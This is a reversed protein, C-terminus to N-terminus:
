KVGWAIGCSVVVAGSGWVPVAIELHVDSLQDHGGSSRTTTRYAIGATAGLSPMLESTWGGDRGAVRTLLFESFAFHPGVYMRAQGIQLAFAGTAVAQLGGFHDGIHPVFAITGRFYPADLMVGLMAAYTWAGTLQLERGAATIGARSFMVDGLPTYGFGAVNATFSLAFAPLRPERPEAAERSPAPPLPEVIAAPAVVSENACRISARDHAVVRGRLTDFIDYEITLSGATLAVLTWGNTGTEVRAAAGIPRLTFRGPTLPVRTGHELDDLYPQVAVSCHLASGAHPSAGGAAGGTSVAVATIGAAIPEPVVDDHSFLATRQTLVFATEGTYPNCAGVTFAASAVADLALQYRDCAARTHDSHLVAVSLVRGEAHTDSQMASIAVPWSPYGRVAIELENGDAFAVSSSLAIALGTAACGM